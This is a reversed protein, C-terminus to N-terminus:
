KNNMKIPTKPQSYFIYYYADVKFLHVWYFASMMQFDVTFKLQFVKIEYVHLYSYKHYFM